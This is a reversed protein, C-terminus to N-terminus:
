GGIRSRPDMLVNRTTNLLIDGLKKKTNEPIQSYIAMAEEKSMDLQNLVLCIFIDTGDLMADNFTDPIKEQAVVPKQPESSHKFSRIDTSQDGFVYM